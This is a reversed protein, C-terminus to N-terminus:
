PAAKVNIQMQQFISMFQKFRHGTEPWAVPKNRLVWRIKDFIIKRDEEDYFYNSWEDPWQDVPMLSFGNGYMKIPGPLSRVDLRAKDSELGWEFYKEWFRFYNILRSTLQQPTEKQTAKVRWKNNAVSFPNDKETLPNKLGEFHHWSNAGNDANVDLIMEKEDLKRIIIRRSKGSRPTLEITRDKLVWTGHEFGELNATYKGKRELNLYNVPTLVPENSDESVDGDAYTYFWVKTILDERTNCASLGALFLFLLAILRYRM